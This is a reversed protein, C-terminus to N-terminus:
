KTFLEGQYPVGHAKHLKVRFESWTSCEKMLAIAEDRYQELEVQGEATLFQFHKYVRGSGKKPNLKRVTPLVAQSFRDYILENLWGGVEKPKIYDTPDLDYWGNLRFIESFFPISNPFRPEYPQRKEVLLAKLSGLSVHSGGILEISEKDRQKKREVKERVLDKTQQLLMGSLLSRELKQEPSIEVHHTEKISPTSLSLDEETAVVTKKSKKM